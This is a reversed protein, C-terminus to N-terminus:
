VTKTVGPIPLPYRGDANPLAPPNSDTTYNDLGPALEVNSNL